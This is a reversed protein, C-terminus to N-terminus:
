DEGERIEDLIQQTQKKFNLTDFVKSLDVKKDQIFVRIEKNPRINAKQVIDRPFAIGISNGWKRAVTEVEMM